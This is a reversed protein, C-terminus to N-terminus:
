RDEPPKFSVAQGDRLRENGEVVVFMGETLGVAEIGADLGDYGIVQVPLMTAKSNIVAFVVNQGFQSIIADRPAIFTKKIEGTPLTVRASMGEILFYQNTTRIKVPFTRTAVDGQPIIAFVTGSFENGNAAAGVQMGIKIYQIFQEPLEAVIDIVDDKGILAVSEGESIWEGHDVYRKIVVGDFPARITKKELEIALQEVQADLSAARKETGIVRYKNQDYAQESISKNQFLTERRKLDIRAIELESLVQEFTSRAAQLRKRLIESGLSLLIQGKKVRQGEEFRVDSALGSTESATESIEQYFITAIFEGRPAVKGIKVEAVSVRAPPPGQAEQQGWLRPSPYALFFCLGFLIIVFHISRRVM